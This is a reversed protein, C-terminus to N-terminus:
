KKAAAPAPAVANMFKEIQAAPIMGSLVAGDAFVLTPTVTFGLKDSLKVVQDVPNRCTPKSRPVVQKLM